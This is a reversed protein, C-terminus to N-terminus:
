ENAGVIERFTGANQPTLIAERLDRDGLHVIDGGVLQHSTESLARKRRLMEEIREELTGASVLRHVYVDKDQGHPLARDAAQEESQRTGGATM